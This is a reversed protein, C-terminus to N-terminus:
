LKFPRLMFFFFFYNGRTLFIIKQTTKAFYDDLHRNLYDTDDDNHIAYGEQIPEPLEDISKPPPRENLGLKHLIQNKVYEIRLSTLEDESMKVSNEKCKPCNASVKKISEDGDTVFDVDDTNIENRHTEDINNYKPGDNEQDRKMLSSAALLAWINPPITRKHQESSDDDNTKYIKQLHQKGHHRMKPHVVESSTILTLSLFLVLMIFIWCIQQMKEKYKERKNLSNKQSKKLAKIM